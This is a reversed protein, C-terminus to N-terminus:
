RGCKLSFRISTAGGLFADPPIELRPELTADPLTGPACSYMVTKRNNSKVKTVFPRHPLPRVQLVGFTVPRGEPRGDQRGHQRGDLRGDPRGVASWVRRSPMERGTDAEFPRGLSLSFKRVISRILIELQLCAVRRVRLHQLCEQGVTEM